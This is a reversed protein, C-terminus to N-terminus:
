SVKVIVWATMKQLVLRFTVIPNIFEKQLDEFKKKEFDQWIWGSVAFITVNAKKYM